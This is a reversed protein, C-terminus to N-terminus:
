PRPRFTVSSGEFRVGCSDFLGQVFSSKRAPDAYQLFTEADLAHSQKMSAVARDWKSDLADLLGIGLLPGARKEHELAKEFHLRALDATDGGHGKELALLLNAFGVREEEEAPSLQGTLQSLPPLRGLDAVTILNNARAMAEVILRAILAQGGITPHVNDVIWDKGVIGDKAAADFGAEIDALLAPTRDAIERMAENFDTAARNIRGDHDRAVLFQKKAEATRGLALLARGRAFAITAPTPDIAEARDLLELVEQARVKEDAADKSDLRDLATAILGRVEERQEETSEARFVDAMPAFDRLNSVSTCLVLAIDLEECRRVMAEVNDRFAQLVTRYEPTDIPRREIASEGISAAPRESEDVGMARKVATVLRLSALSEVIGALIPHEARRMLRAVNAPHFENHASYLVVIDPELEIAEEFVRLEGASYNGGVGCGIVEISDGSKLLRLMRQLVVPFALEPFPMGEVTSGGVCAIRIVGEPKKAVYPPYEKKGGGPNRQWIEVGSSDSRRTFIRAGKGPTVFVRAVGEALTLFAVPALIAIALKQWTSKMSRTHRVDPLRKEVPQPVRAVPSSLASDPVHARPKSDCNM